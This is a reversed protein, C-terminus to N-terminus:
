KETGMLVMLANWYDEFLDADERLCEIVAARGQLKLENGDEDEVMEFPNEPSMLAFWSGSKVILKYEMCVDVTDALIDVGESYNLTYYGVLRDPKCVKTKKIFLEVRHACPEESSRKLETGKIENGKVDLLPGKNVYIRLCFLHKLAKGGPTKFRDFPNNMDERVQNVILLATNTKAMIQTAKASFKTMVGAVGGYIQGEMDKEYLSKPVLSPVSDIVLAIVGGSEMIDLAMQCIEEATQSEPRVLILDDTSVGNLKAWDVDLTMEADIYAVKQPGDEYIKALAAEMEKSKKDAGKQNSARWKAVEKKAEDVKDEFESQALRQAQGVIDLCSTTKGGNEPGFFETAKGRPVGGYTMFNARPSSFPIKEIEKLETGKKVIETGYKKNIENIVSKLTNSM